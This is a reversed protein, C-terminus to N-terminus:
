GPVIEGIGQFFGPRTLTWTMILFLFGQAIRHKQLESKIRALEETAIRMSEETVPKPGECAKLCTQLADGTLDQAQCRAKCEAVTQAFLNNGEELSAVVREQRALEETLDKVM